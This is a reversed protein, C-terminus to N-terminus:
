DGGGVAFGVFGIVQLVKSTEGGNDKNTEEVEERTQHAAPYM